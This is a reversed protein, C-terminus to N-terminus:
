LMLGAKVHDATENGKLYRLIALGFNVAHGAGRGTILRGDVVTSEPTLAAAGQSNVKSVRPHDGPLAGGTKKASYVELPIAAMATEDANTIFLKLSVGENDEIIKENKDDLNVKSADVTVTLREANEVTIVPANLKVGSEQTDAGGYWGIVNSDYNKGVLDSLSMETPDAKYRGTRSGYFVDLVRAPNAQYRVVYNGGARITEDISGFPLMLGLVSNEFSDSPVRFYYIGSNTGSGGTAAGTDTGSEADSGTGENSGTNQSVTGDKGYNITESTYGQSEAMTLHNQAAIFIEKAIADAELQAMSKQYSQVAIFGVGALVTIIAVVILLEALTFGRNNRKKKM